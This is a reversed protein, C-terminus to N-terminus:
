VTHRITPSSVHTHQKIFYQGSNHLNSKPGM